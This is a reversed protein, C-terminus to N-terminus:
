QTKQYLMIYQRKSSHVTFGNQALIKYCAKNNKRLRAFFRDYRSAHISKKLAVRGIHLGRKPKNVQIDVNVYGAFDGSKIPSFKVSGCRTSKSFIKWGEFRSSAMKEVSISDFSTKVTM